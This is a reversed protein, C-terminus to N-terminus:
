TLDDSPENPGSELGVEEGFVDRRLRQENQQKVDVFDQCDSFFCFHFFEDVGKEYLAEHAAVQFDLFQGKSPQGQYDVFQLRRFEFFLKEEVQNREEFRGLRIQHQEIQFEDVFVHVQEVLFDHRLLEEVLKGIKVGVCLFLVVM